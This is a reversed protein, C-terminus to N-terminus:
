GANITRDVVLTGEGTAQPRWSRQAWSAWVASGADPRAIYYGQAQDVGLSAITTLDESSQVGEATVTADLELALLVIATVFARRAPDDGIDIVLSRDLKIVDPRLQLVHNFSAYGAGTDDIALQVGRERLVVLAAKIDDYETVAAHETIELTIRPLAVNSRIITQALRPDLILSPSANVSIRVDEPLRPVTELAARVAALELEVGVGAEHAERFWVDPARGDPFRALAEVGAWRDRELDIFPQLAITMTGHDLLDGVRQRTAWAARDAEAASVAHRGHTPEGFRSRATAELTALREDAASVRHSFGLLDRTARWVALVLAVLSALGAVAVLNVWSWDGRTLAGLGELRLVLAVASEAVVAVLLWRMTTRLRRDVGRPEDM